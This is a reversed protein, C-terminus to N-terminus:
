PETWAIETSEATSCSTDGIEWRRDQKRARAIKEGMLRAEPRLWTEM